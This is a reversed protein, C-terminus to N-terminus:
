IYTSNNQLITYKQTNIPIFLHMWSCVLCMCESTCSIVAWWKSSWVLGKGASHHDRQLHVEKKNIECNVYLQKANKFFM